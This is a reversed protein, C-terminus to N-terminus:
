DRFLVFDEGLLRIFTPKDKLDASIGVPWWYLRLLSGMPTGPRVRTLIENQERTTHDM